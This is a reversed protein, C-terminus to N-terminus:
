QTLGTGMKVVNRSYKGPLTTTRVCRRLGSARTQVDATEWESALRRRAADNTPGDDDEWLRVRSQSARPRM